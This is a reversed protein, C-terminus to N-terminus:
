PSPPKIMVSLPPITIEVGALPRDPDLHNYAAIHLARLHNEYVTCNGYFQIAIQTFTQGPQIIHQMPLTILPEIPPETILYLPPITIEAGALPREPSLNNYTAIHLARLHNESATGNGYFQIAIQTFTQGPQIIHQMPLTYLPETSSANHNDNNNGTAAGQNAVAQSLLRALNDNETRLQANLNVYATAQNYRPLMEEIHAEAAILDNRANTRSALALVSIILLSAIIIIDLTHRKIGSM